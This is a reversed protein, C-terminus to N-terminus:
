RVRAFCEDLLQTVTGENALIDEKFITAMDDKAIYGSKKIDYIQFVM